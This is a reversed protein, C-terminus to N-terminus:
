LKGTISNGAPNSGHFDINKDGKKGWLLPIKSFETVRTAKNRVSVDFVVM